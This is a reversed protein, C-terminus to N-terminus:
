TLHREEYLAALASWYEIRTRYMRKCVGGTESDVELGERSQESHVVDHPRTWSNFRCM